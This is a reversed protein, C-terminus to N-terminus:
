RVPEAVAREPEAPVECVGGACVEYAEDKAAWGHRVLRAYIECGLCLGLVSELWMLALCMLCITRPLVGHINVNTIVTMAASLVLGLTWAFRKPKASVWEPPRGRTIWRSVVGVPSRHVGVMVRILFDVFFFATVLKIPLFSKVFNAYVFAYAGLAMTIGAAARVQVENFVGAHFVTGDPGPEDLIVGYPRRKMRVEEKM